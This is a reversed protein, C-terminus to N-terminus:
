PASQRNFRGVWFAILIWYPECHEAGFQDESIQLSTMQSCSFTRLNLRIAATNPITTMMETVGAADALGRNILHGSLV